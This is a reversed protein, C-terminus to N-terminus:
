RYLRRKAVAKRDVLCWIGRRDRRSPRQPHTHSVLANVRGVRVLHRGLLPEIFDGVDQGRSEQPEPPPWPMHRTDFM